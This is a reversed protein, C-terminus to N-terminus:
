DINNLHITEINAPEDLTFWDILDRVMTGSKEGFICSGHYGNKIFILQNPDLKSAIYKADFFIENGALVHKFQIGKYDARCLTGNYVMYCRKGWSQLELDHAWFAFICMEIRNLKIKLRNMDHRNIVSLTHNSHMDHVTTFGDMMIVKQNEVSIHETDIQANIYFTAQCTGLSHAIVDHHQLGIASHVTEMISKGTYHRDSLPSNIYGLNPVEIIYVSRGFKKAYAAYPIAGMGYGPFFIIPKTGPVEFSWIGYVGDCTSHYRKSYGCCLQAYVEGVARICYITLEMAIPRYHWFMGGSGLTIIDHPDSNNSKYKAYMVHLDDFADKIKPVIDGRSELVDVYRQYWDVPLSHRLEAIQPPKLTCNVRKEHTIGMQSFYTHRASKRCYNGFECIMYTTAIGSIIMM